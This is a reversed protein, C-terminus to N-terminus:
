PTHSRGVVVAGHLSDGQGQATWHEPVGVEFPHDTIVPAFTYVIGRELEGLDRFSCVQQPGLLARERGDDHLVDVDEGPDGLEELGPEPADTALERAAARQHVADVEGGVLARHGLVQGRHTLLEGVDLDAAVGPKVFGVVPDLHSHLAQVAGQRVLRHLPEQREELSGMIKALNPL